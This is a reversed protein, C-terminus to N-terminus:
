ALSLTACTAFSTVIWFAISGSLGLHALANNAQQPEVSIGNQFISGTESANYYKLLSPMLSM